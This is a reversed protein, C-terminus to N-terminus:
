NINKVKQNDDVIMSGEDIIFDDVKIGNLIETKENTSKGIEIFVKKTKYISNEDTKILKFIYPQGEANENIIKTPIMIAKKNYYDTILIKAALNPKIINNSNNLPAEIRFTRNDPNIYNGTQSIKTKQSLNLVPINVIAESGIKINPLHNEPVLAEVYMKDLNIIRLVPTVYPTLIQGKKGKIEDIIGKFPSIIKTKSLRKKMQDVMKKQSEYKAKSELYKMESGIKKNWLRETREFNTKSLSFQIKLQELEENLGSDDIIALLEGKKVQQSETVYIEELKGSLEPFLILNQRTNINAQIEIKHKFPESFIKIGTVLLVKQNNTIKDISSNIKKLDENLEDIKTVIKNKESELFEIKSKEFEIKQEKKKDYNCGNSIFFLLLLSLIKKNMKM